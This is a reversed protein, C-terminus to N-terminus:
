EAPLVFDSPLRGVVVSYPRMHFNAFLQVRALLLGQKGVHLSIKHLDTDTNAGSDNPDAGVYHWPRQEQLLILDRLDPTFGDIGLKAVAYSHAIKAIVALFMTPNIIIEQEWNGGLRALRDAIDQQVTVLRVNMEPYMDTVPSFTLLAPPPLDIM